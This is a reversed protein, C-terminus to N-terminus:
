KLTGRYLSPWNGYLEISTETGDPLRVQVVKNANPSQFCDVALVAIQKGNVVSTIFPEKHEIALLAQEKKPQKWGGNSKFALDKVVGGTIVDEVQKAMWNGLMYYETPFDWYMPAGSTMNKGVESEPTKGDAAHWEYGWGWSDKSLKYANPDKGVPASDQWLYYGDFLVLSFLSLSLAQSAPMLELQNMILEGKPSTLQYNWPNIPDKYLPQYKNWGYFIFKNNKQYPIQQNIRQSHTASLLVFNNPSNGKEDMPFMSKSYVDIPVTNFVTRLSEGSPMVDFNTNNSKPEQYDKYFDAPKAGGVTNIHPNTYAGGGWYDMLYMQPHNKKIVSAFWFLRQKVDPSYKQNWFEFDLAYVGFGPVGARSEVEQKSLQSFWKDDQDAFYNPTATYHLKSPPYEKETNFLYGIGRKYYNEAPVYDNLRFQAVIKNKVPEFEPFKTDFTVNLGRPPAFWDPINIRTLASKTQESVRGSIWINQQRLSRNKMENWWDNYPADIWRATISYLYGPRVEVGNELGNVGIGDIMVVKTRGDQYNAFDKLFLKGDKLVPRVDLWNDKSGHRIWQSIDPIEKKIAEDFNFSATTECGPQGLSIVKISAEGANLDVQPLTLWTGYRHPVDAFKQVKGSQTLEIHYPALGGVNAALEFQMESGIQRYRRVVLDCANSSSDITTAVPFDKTSEPYHRDTSPGFRNWAWLGSGALFILIGSAWLFFSKSM